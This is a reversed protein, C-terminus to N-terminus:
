DYMMSRFASLIGALLFLAPITEGILVTQSGMQKGEATLLCIEQSKKRM